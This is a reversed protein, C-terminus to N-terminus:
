DTLGYNQYYKRQYYSEPIAYYKTFNNVDVKNLVIGLLNESISNAGRFAEKVADSSTRNWEIVCIYRGVFGSTARTDAVPILPPLDVVVYDYKSQLHEFFKKTADSGLFESCFTFGNHMPTPLFALGTSKDAWLADQLKARGAIVDPFGHEAHFALKRSLSPNRLDCDVLIVRLGIQAMVLALSAAITSKGEDPLSSTVGIVRNFVLASNNLDIALKISRISEAFRSFPSDLAAWCIDRDRSISRHNTILSHTTDQELSPRAKDRGGLYKTGRMLPVLSICPAQLLSEVEERTHFSCNILERLVGLGAGLALGGGMAIAVVLLTKPGTKSTPPTAASLIRADSIPFAQQQLSENYRQLFNEYIARSNQASSELERLPVQAQDITRSQSVADALQSELNKLQQKAIEYNSIYSERLRKVEELISSQLDRLQSQLNVVALHNPGYKRSWNAERNALELYRSRLQTIITNNLTDAVTANTKTRLNDDRIVEDIRDLHAKVESVHRRASAIQSNLEAVLQEHVLKGDATVVNNKQKYDIVAREALAQKQNLEGIRGQLWESTRKTSAYKGELQEAIYAEAIENAVQAARTPKAARYQISLNYSLGVRKVTLNKSIIALAAKTSESESFPKVAGFHSAVKFIAGLFGPPKLFDPDKNLELSKIVSLAVPESKVLEMETEFAPADLPGELFPAKMFLQIRRPDIVVTTEATYTPPVTLLYLAGLLAGLIATPLIVILQRRIIGIIWVFLQRPTRTQDIESETTSSAMQLM